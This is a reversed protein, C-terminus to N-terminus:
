DKSFYSMRNTHQKIFHSYYYLGGWLTITPILTTLLKPLTQVYGEKNKNKSWQLLSMNQACPSCVPHAGLLCSLIWSLNGMTTIGSSLRSLVTIIVAWTYQTRVVPWSGNQSDHIIEKSEWLMERFYTHIKDGNNRIFSLYSKALCLLPNQPLCKPCHYRYLPEPIHFLLSPHFQLCPPTAPTFLIHPCTTHSSTPSIPPDAIMTMQPKVPGEASSDGVSSQGDAGWQTSPFCSGISEEENSYTSKM